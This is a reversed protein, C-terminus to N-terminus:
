VHIIERLTSTRESEPATLAALLARYTPRALDFPKAHGIAKRHLALSKFRTEGCQPCRINRM